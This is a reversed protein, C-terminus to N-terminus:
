DLYVRYFNKSSERKVSIERFGATAMLRELHWVAVRRRPRLVRRFEELGRATDPFFM